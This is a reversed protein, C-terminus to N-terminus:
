PMEQTQLRTQRQQARLRELANNSPLTLSEFSEDAPRNDQPASGQISINGTTVSPIKSADGISPSKSISNTNDPATDLFSINPNCHTLPPTKGKKYQFQSDKQSKPQEQTIDGLPPIVVMSVEPEKEATKFFSKQRTPQEQTIDPPIVVMSVEPEKEATKFFSKQRTHQEQTIDGSPPIVVM